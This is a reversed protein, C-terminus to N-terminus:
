KLEKHYNNLYGNKKLDDLMLKKVYAAMTRFGLLRAARRLSYKQQKLLPIRVEKSGKSKKL